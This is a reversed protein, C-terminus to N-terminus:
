DKDVQLGYVLGLAVRAAARRRESVDEMGSIEEKMGQLATLVRSLDFASLEFDDDDDHEFLHEDDDVNEVASRFAYVDIEGEGSYDSVSALSRYSAGTHAPMLREVEHEVGLMQSSLSPAAVFDAFDDDFGNVGEGTPTVITPTLMDQWADADAAVSSINIWTQTEPGDEEDLWRELEEMERQMRSKISAPEEASSSSGDVDASILARLGDNVEQDRAWDLLERARSKRQRTADSQVITPWMITSLADIVRPLGPIGTDEDESSRTHDQTPLRFGRDGEIFEFGHTSLFEDLDEDEKAPSTTTHSFRVALSVEPDYHELRKSIEPIHERYPEGDVWVYIVAPVGVAHHAGFDRFERTVFHVDATYYKNVITWPISNSNVDIALESTDVNSSLAKVRQVFQQAQASTPSIILIRCSPTETM